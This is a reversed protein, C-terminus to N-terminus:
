DRESREARETRETRETKKSDRKKKPEYVNVSGGFFAYFLLLGDLATPDEKLLEHGTQYYMPWLSNTLDESFSYEEGWANVREGKKNIHSTAFRHFLAASPALKNMAREIILGEMTPAKFPTGLQVMEGNTKKIPNGLAGAILRSTLVIEQQRGGWPDVRIDGIKIKMFDSSTPNLEIGTEEDDDNEYYLYALIMMSTTLGLFKSYDALAM